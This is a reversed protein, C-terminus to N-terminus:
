NDGVSKNFAAREADDKITAPNKIDTQAMM